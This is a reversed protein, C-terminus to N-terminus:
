RPGYVRADREDEGHRRGYRIDRGPVDAADASMAGDGPGADM